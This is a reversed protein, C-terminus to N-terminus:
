TKSPIIVPDNKRGEYYRWVAKGRYDLGKYKNAGIIIVGEGSPSTIMPTESVEFPLKPGLILNKFINEM